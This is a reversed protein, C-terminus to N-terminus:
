DWKFKTVVGNRTECKITKKQAKIKGKSDTTIVNVKATVSARGDSKKDTDKVENMTVNTAGVATARSKAEALCVQTAVDRADGTPAAAAATAATSAAAAKEAAAKDAAAREAAAKDAAAQQKAAAKEQEKASKEAAARDKEAQAAQDNMREEAAARDNAAAKEADAARQAAAADVPTPAIAAADPAPTVQAVAAGALALLSVGIILNRM